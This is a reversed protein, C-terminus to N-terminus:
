EESIEKQAQLYDAYPIEKLQNSDQVIQFEIMNFRYLFHKIFAEVDECLLADPDYVVYLITESFIDERTQVKNNGHDSIKCERRLRIFNQAIM